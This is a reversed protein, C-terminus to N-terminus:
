VCFSLKSFGQGSDKSIFGFAVIFGLSFIGVLTRFSWGVYEGRSKGFSEEFGGNERPYYQSGFPSFNKSSDFYDYMNYHNM